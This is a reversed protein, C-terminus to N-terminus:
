YNIYTAGGPINNVFEEISCITILKHEFNIPEQLHLVVNGSTSVTIKNVMYETNDGDMKVYHGPPKQPGRSSMKRIMFGM